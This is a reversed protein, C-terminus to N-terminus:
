SWNSFKGSEYMRTHVISNATILIQIRTGKLNGTEVPFIWITQLGSWVNKANDPVNSIDPSWGNVVSFSSTCTNPDTIWNNTFLNSLNNNSYSFAM